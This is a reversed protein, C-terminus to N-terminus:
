ALLIPVLGLAPFSRSISGPTDALDARRIGTNTDRARKKAARSASRIAM